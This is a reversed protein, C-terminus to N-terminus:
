TVRKVVQDRRAIQTKRTNKESNEKHSRLRDPPARYSDRPMVRIEPSGLYDWLTRKPCNEWKITKQKLKKGEMFVLTHYPPM